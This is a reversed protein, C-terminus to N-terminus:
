KWVSWNTGNMQIWLQEGTWILGRMGQQVVKREQGHKNCRFCENGNIVLESGVVVLSFANQSKLDCTIVSLVDGNQPDLTLLPGDNFLAYLKNETHCYSIGRAHSGHEYSKNWIVDNGDPSLKAWTKSNDGVYIYGFIDISMSIANIPLNLTGISQQYNSNSFRYVTCSNFSTKIWFEKSVPNYCSCFQCSIGFTCEKEKVWAIGKKMTVPVLKWVVENIRNKVIDVQNKDILATVGLEEISKMLVVLSTEIKEKKQTVEQIGVSIQAIEDEVSKIKEKLAQLENKKETMKKQILDQETQEVLQQAQIPTVYSKLEDRIGDVYKFVTCMTHSKHDDIVCMYCILVKCDNCYVKNEELHKSCKSFSPLKSRENLTLRHHNKTLKGSHETSNCDNCFYVPSDPVGSASCSECWWVAPKPNGECTQCLIEKKSGKIQEMWQIAIWNPPLSDVSPFATRCLPCFLQNSKLQLLCSKCFTHGCSIVRPDVLQCFCVACDFSNEM